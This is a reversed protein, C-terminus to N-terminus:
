NGGTLLFPAWAFPAATAKVSRLRRKADRLARAYPPVRGQRTARAVSRFTSAVLTATSADNVPWVSAVVHTAGAAFFGRSLSFTGEGAIRSGVGTDCASLVVLEADLELGDIEYLRLLGDDLPDTAGSSPVALALGALLDSRGLEVVGHTALHVFRKGPLADRVARETATEGELVVIEGVRTAARLADVVALSEARSGPLPPFRGAYAPDAVTLVGQSRASAPERRAVTALITVSPAYLIPPGADLWYGAERWSSAGRLVLTELPLQTLAGDPIVIAGRARRVIAWAEDPVLVVRLAALEAITGAADETSGGPPEALLRLLPMGISRPGGALVSELREANLPGAPVGLIGAQAGGVELRYARTAGDDKDVVFLWSRERGIRYSLLVDGDRLLEKRVVAPSPPRGLAGVADRWLPSENKVDDAVVQLARAAAEVREASAKLRERRAEPTLDTRDREFDARAQAEALAAAADAERADLKARTTPDLSRRLDGTGATLLDLLARARSREAFVLAADVDGAELSWAIMQDYDDLHRRVFDARSREGGGRRPRLSEIEQLAQGLVGRAEVKRGLRDLLTAELTLADVEAEPYARSAALARAAASVRPLIAEPLAAGAALEARALQVRSTETVPHTPGYVKERIALAREYLPIAEAPRGAGALTDAYDHLNWSVNPHDPGLVSEQAELSERYLALSRDLRGAEDHLMALNVRYFLLAPNEPCLAERAKALSATLLPEADSLRGQRRYIEGLNNEGMAITAPAAIEPHEELVDVYRKAWREAEDYEARDLHIGAISTEIESVLLPDADATGSEIAYARDFARAADDYRDQNRYAEGLNHLADAYAHPDVPDDSEISALARDFCEKADAFRGQQLLLLGVDRLSRRWSDLSAPLKAERIVLARREHAEGEAFRGQAYLVSAVLSESEAVCLDNGPLAGARLVLTRDVLSSAYEWAGGRCLASQYFRVGLWGLDSALRLPDGTHEIERLRILADAAEQAQGADGQELLATVRADAQEAEWLRRDTATAKRRITWALELDFPPAGEPPLVELRWAGEADAIWAADPRVSQPCASGSATEPDRIWRQREQGDPGRVVLAVPGGQRTLRVEAYHGKTLALSFAAGESTALTVAMRAGPALRPVESGTVGAALAAVVLATV